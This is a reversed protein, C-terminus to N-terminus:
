PHSARFTNSVKLAQEYVADLGPYLTRVHYNAEVWARGNRRLRRDLAPEDLLREIAQAFAPPADALLINEGERVALGEAGVSTAVVPL